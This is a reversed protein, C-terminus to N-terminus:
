FLDIRCSRIDNSIVAWPRLSIALAALWHLLSCFDEGFASASRKVESFLAESARNLPLKSLLFKTLALGKVGYSAM